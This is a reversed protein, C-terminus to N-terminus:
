DVEYYVQGLLRLLYGGPSSLRKIIIEILHYDWYFIVRGLGYLVFGLLLYGLSNLLIALSLTISFSLFLYEISVGWVMAPRTLALFVMAREPYQARM